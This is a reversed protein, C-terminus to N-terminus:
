GQLMSTLNLSHLEMDKKLSSMQGENELMCAYVVFIYHLGLM